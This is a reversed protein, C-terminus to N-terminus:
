KVHYYVTAGLTVPWALGLGAGVVVGCVFNNAIAPIAKVPDRMDAEKFPHDLKQMEDRVQFPTAVAATVGAGILYALRARM